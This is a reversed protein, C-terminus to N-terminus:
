SLARRIPIIASLPPILLGITLGLLCSQGTPLPSVDFAANGMFHYIVFLLPVSCIFACLIAPLVFILAQESILIILGGSSLGTMRMVGFEFTKKEISILLLSYILLIAILVLM